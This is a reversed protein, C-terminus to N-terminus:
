IIQPVYKEYFTQLTHIHTYTHRPESFGPQVTARSFVHLSSASGVTRLPSSWTHRQVNQKNPSETHGSVSSLGVM